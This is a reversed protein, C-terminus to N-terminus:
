EERATTQYGSGQRGRDARPSEAPRGAWWQRGGHSRGAKECEEWWWVWEADCAVSDVGAVDDGQWWAGLGLHTPVILFPSHHTDIVSTPM